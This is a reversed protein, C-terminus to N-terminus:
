SRRSMGGGGDRNGMNTVQRTIEAANGLLRLVPAQYPRPERAPIEDTRTKADSSM